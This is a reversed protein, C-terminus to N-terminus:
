KAEVGEVMIQRAEPANKAIWAKVGGDLAKTYGAENDWRLIVYRNAPPKGSIPKAKNFGCRSSTAVM